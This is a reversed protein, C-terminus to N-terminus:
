RLQRARIRLSFQRRAFPGADNDFAPLQVDVIEAPKLQVESKVSRQPGAFGPKDGPNGWRSRVEIAVAITGSDLRPTITGYVDVPVNAEVIRDFFFPTAHNPLGRVSLPQTKQAEGGGAVREILWLDAAVLRREEGEWPWPEVSVRISASKGCPRGSITKGGPPLAVEDVPWSEGPRLTLEIEDGTPQTSRPKGGAQDLQQRLGMMRTSRLKFTVSNGAVRVPTLDILWATSAKDITDGKVSSIGFGECEGSWSVMTPTSTGIAVPGTSRWIGLPQEGGDAKLTYLGLRIQVDEFTQARAPAAAACVIALAMTLLKM